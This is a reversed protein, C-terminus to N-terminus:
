KSAPETALMEAFNLCTSGSVATRGHQQPRPPASLSAGPGQLAPPTQGPQLPQYLADLTPMEKTASGAPSVPIKVQQRPESQHDKLHMMKTTQSHVSLKTLVAIGSHIGPFALGAPNAIHFLIRYCTLKPLHQARLGKRFNVTCVQCKLLRFTLFDM